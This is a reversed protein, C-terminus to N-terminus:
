SIVQVRQLVTPREGLQLYLALLRRDAKERSSRAFNTERHM